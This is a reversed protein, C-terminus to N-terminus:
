EYRTEIEQITLKEVTPIGEPPNLILEKKYIISLRSRAPDISDQNNEFYLDGVKTSGTFSSSKTKGKVANLIIPSGSIGGNIRINSGVGYIELMSKSYLYADIEKPNDQYLNNNAMHISSDSLLILTGGSRNNLDEVNIDKKTYISGNTNLDERIDLQDTDIYMAGDLNLNRIYTTSNNGKIFISKGQDVSLNGSLSASGDIYIDGHVIVSGGSEISLNGYIYLNGNVILIGNKKVIVDTKTYFKGFLWFSDTLRTHNPYITERTITFSSQEYTQTYNPIRNKENIASMVDIVTTKPDTQIIRPALSFINAIEDPNVTKIVDWGTLSNEKAANGDKNTYYYKGKVNLNGKIAPFSTAPWYTSGSIFKGRKRSFLNGGVYVDGELYSSGNLKLDGNTIASYRFVDAITSITITKYLKESQKGKIGQSMLTIEETYIGNSGDNITKRNIIQYKYQGHDQQIHSLEASLRSKVQDLTLGVRSIENNIDNVSKEIRALAEDM